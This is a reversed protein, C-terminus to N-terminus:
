FSFGWGFHVMVYAGGSTLGPLIGGEIGMAQAWRSSRILSARRTFGVRFGIMSIADAAEGTKGHGIEEFCSCAAEYERTSKYISTLPSVLVDLYSNAFLHSTKDGFGKSIYGVSMIRNLTVGFGLTLNRTGYVNSITDDQDSANEVLLTDLSPSFVSRQGYMIGGRLALQRHVMVPLKVVHLTISNALSSQMEPNFFNLRKSKRKEWDRLAYNYFSEANIRVLRREGRYYSAMAVDVITANLATIIFQDNDDFLRTYSTSLAFPGWVGSEDGGFYPAFRFAHFDILNRVITSPDDVITVQETYDGPFSVQYSHTYKGPQATASTLAAAMLLFLLAKM